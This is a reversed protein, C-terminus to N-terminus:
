RALAPKTSAPPLLGAAALEPRVAALLSTTLLHERMAVRDGALHRLEDHLQRRALPDREAVMRANRDSHELVHRRCIERRRDLCEDLGAEDGNGTVLAALPDAILWADHIGSNMGMGGLPNNLHAADGALLVRGVRLREAVRQHVNYLTVHEIHLEDARESIEHLRERVRPPSSAVEALEDPDVPFLVRWRDQTRLVVFWAEPDFVYNISALDPLVQSLDDSLTLVLYREPYTKGEFAIGLSRRVASHAGDAALVWPASFEETGDPGDVAVVGRDAETRAAIVRHGFRIDAGDTEQLREFLLRAVIRQELQLRFPFRTDQSLVSLDLEAIVGERRDRYQFRPAIHGLRLMEDALGLQHLMELTPPHFTSARSEQSLAPLAELVLPRIGRRSLALAATLGVPGAGAIIVPLDSV